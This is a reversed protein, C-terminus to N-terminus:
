ARIDVGITYDQYQRMIAMTSELMKLTVEDNRLLAGEIGAQVKRTFDIREGDNTTLLENSVGNVPIKMTMAMFPQSDNLSMKGSRIKDNVWDLMEQRTMSTFNTQKIDATDTKTESTTATIPTASFAEAANRNAVSSQARQNAYLHSSAADIRM